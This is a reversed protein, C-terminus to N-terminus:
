YSSEFDYYITFIAFSLGFSTAFSISITSLLNMKFRVCVVTIMDWLFHVRLYGVMGRFLVGRRVM